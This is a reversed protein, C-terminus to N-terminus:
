DELLRNIWQDAKDKEDFWYEELLPRVETEVTLNYWAEPDDIYGTPVFFSHGIRYGEGLNLRDNAIADNLETMRVIIKTIIENPVGYDELTSRFGESAFQPGMTIFAFRRRLAYDVLSLSRDATNMMGILFVNDPIHFRPEGETAYTLQVAWDASRKDAELLLMLEGLIKSLNGRNIEDIIFVFPRDPQQLAKMCFRFFSGDRRTFGGSQDPRYGQVFDEYGYSQHFQVAEICDTNREGMLTYALHKAIFSKGVGPAGQLIINKKRRWISIIRLFEERPLFVSQSRDYSKPEQVDSANALESGIDGAADILAVLCENFVHDAPLNGIDFVKYALVGKQLKKPLNAKSALDPELNTEFGRGRLLSVQTFMKLRDAEAKIAKLVPLRDNTAKNEISTVGIGLCFYLKSLDSSMLIVAYVGEQTTLKPNHQPNLFAVWPCHAWNSKGASWKIKEPKNKIEPLSRMEAIWNDMARELADVKGFPLTRAERIENLAIIAADSISM